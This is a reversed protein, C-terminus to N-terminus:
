AAMDQGPPVVPPNAVIEEQHEEFPKEGDIVDSRQCLAYFERESMLGQQVASMYAVFDQASLGFPNFERNIEFVVEGSAGDWQAMTKLAWTIADSVGIVIAAMVSNEGSRKIQTAGLTEAQRTEDAIMRAGLIAMRQELEKLAAQMQPLMQGEPEAFYAKAQPDPLIIASRSGVTITENEDPTYGSICFTPVGFHMAVRIDSNVQYHAINADVLDILPPEEIGEGMGNAGVIRFPIERLKQGNMVPFVDDGIQEDKNEVIRFVRQRYNGAEDLDLVRYRTEMEDEYEDKAVAEQEKVVVMTLVTQNRVRKTRWNIICKADYSKLVPRRGMAEAAAQSIAAVNDLPPYDVLVGIRGYELIDDTMDKAFSFLTRGTGDIDDTFAELAAPLETKPDKDFAMGVLGSITRFTANFFDSRKVRAEYDTTEEAGNRPLYKEGGAQVARQGKVVDHCRQWTASMDKYEPHETSVGAM